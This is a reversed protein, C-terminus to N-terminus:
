AEHEIAPSAKRIMVGDPMEKDQGSAGEVEEGDEKVDNGYRNLLAMQSSLGQTLFAAALSGRGSVRLCSDKRIPSGGHILCSFDPFDDFAFGDKFPRPDPQFPEETEVLPRLEIRRQRHLRHGRGNRCLSSYSFPVNM